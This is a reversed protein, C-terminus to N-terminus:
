LEYEASLINHNQQYPDWIMSAYELQTRVLIGYLLKLKDAHKFYKGCRNIFGLKRFVSAATLQIHKGFSLDNRFTAGLDRIEDVTTLTAGNLSYIFSFVNVSRSFHVVYCKSINFYLKTIKSWLNLSNLDHQLCYANNVTRTFSKLTTLM